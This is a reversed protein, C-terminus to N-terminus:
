KPITILINNSDLEYSLTGDLQEYILGQILFSGLGTDKSKANKRNKLDSGDNYTIEISDKLSKMEFVIQSNKGDAFVYKMSNMCLENMILGLHTLKDLSIFDFNANVEVNVKKGSPEIISTFLMEFYKVTNLNNSKDTGLIVKHLLGITKIRQSATELAQVVETNSNENIQLNLLSVSVMLNNKVRHHLEQLLQEIEKGKQALDKTREKVKLELDKNLELVRNELRKRESIDQSIGLVDIPKGEADRIVEIRVWVSIESGDKKIGRYEYDFVDETPLKEELVQFIHKADDSHVTKFASDLTIEFEDPEYGFLKFKNAFWVTENTVPNWKWIGVRSLDTAKEYLRLM